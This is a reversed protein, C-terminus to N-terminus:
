KGTKAVETYPVSIYSKSQFLHLCMVRLSSFVHFQIKSFWFVSINRSFHTCDLICQSLCRNPRLVYLFLWLNFTEFIIINYLLGDPFPLFLDHADHPVTSLLACFLTPSTLANTFLDSLFLKPHYPSSEDPEPYTGNFPAQSCPLLGEPDM